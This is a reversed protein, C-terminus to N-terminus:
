YPWLLWVHNKLRVALFRTVYAVMQNNVKLASIRGRIGQYKTQEETGGQEKRKLNNNWKM